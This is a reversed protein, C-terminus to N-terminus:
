SFTLRASWEDAGIMGDSLDQDLHNDVSTNRAFVPAGKANQWTPDTLAASPAAVPQRHLTICRM